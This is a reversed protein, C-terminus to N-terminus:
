CHLLSIRIERVRTREATCASRSSSGGYPRTKKVTKHPSTLVTGYLSGSSKCESGKLLDVERPAGGVSQVLGFGLEADRFSGPHRNAGWGCGVRGVSGYYWAMDGVMYSHHMSVLVRGIYRCDLKPISAPSPLTLLPLVASQAQVSNRHVAPM